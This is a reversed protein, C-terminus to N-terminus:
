EEEEEESSSGDCSSHDSALKASSHDAPIKANNIMEQQAPPLLAVIKPHPGSYGEKKMHDIEIKNQALMCGVVCFLLNDACNLM